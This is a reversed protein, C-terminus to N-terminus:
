DYRMSMGCDIMLRAQGVYSLSPRLTWHWEAASAVGFAGGVDINSFPPLYYGVCAVAMSASFSLVLVRWRSAGDDAAAPSARPAHLTEILKATATGSPFALKEVQLLM